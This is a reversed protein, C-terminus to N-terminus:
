PAQFRWQQWARGQYSYQDIGTSNAKSGGEVDLTLGSNVNNLEYEGGGLSVVHWQQSTSGNAPEQVVHAERSKSAGSVTLYQSSSSNQLTIVNNSVNNVIWQQDAGDNVTFQVIQEGDTTSSGPDEIASGSNVSVVVYTGNPILNTSTTLEGYACLQGSHTSETGFSSLYVMGNAITPPQFKAYNNCTDRSANQQNTWLLNMNSANYAYLIGPETNHWAGLTAPGASNTAAWLIGNTTGNASLSLSGGPHGIAQISLKYKPTTDFETGNFSYVRMYDSQGWLYLNGNWYNLSHIHSSTAQWNQVATSDGLHGLDTTRVLHLVGDKGGGVLLNTGPILLPGSATLDWDHADLTSYDSPTHWDVLGLASDMKLFTESFDTEGNWTGNGTMFYVDGSSDAAPGNGSMWIGSGNADPSASFVGVQTLTTADYAMTYGVWTEQDCHGAFGIYINGNAYLLGPRQNEHVDDFGSGSLTAPSGPLDAGTAINLAHLHHTATSGNWTENVVYLTNGNIVPTGMIGSTALVDDCSYGGDQITFATGLNVHWYQAGTIADFAYVSNNTTAVYVVNHTGGAISVNSVYLPQTYVQDDVPVKFVLGFSNVNVNSPTLVTESSNLGDRNNDNHQTLVNVQARSVGPQLLCTMVALMAPAAMRRALSIGELM